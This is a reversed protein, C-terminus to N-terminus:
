AAWKSTYLEGATCETHCANVSKHWSDGGDMKLLKEDEKRFQFERGM